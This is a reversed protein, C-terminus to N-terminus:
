LEAELIKKYVEAGTKKMEHRVYIILAVITAASGALVGLIFIM